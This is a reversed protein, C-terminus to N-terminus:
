FGRGIQKHIQSNLDSLGGLQSGDMSPIINANIQVTQDPIQPLNALQPNVTIPTSEPLGQIPGDAVLNVKVNMAGTEDVPLNSGGSTMNIIQTRPNVGAMFGNTNLGMAANNLGPLDMFRGSILNSSSIFSMDQQLSDGLSKFSAGTAQIYRANLKANEAAQRQYDAAAVQYALQQKILALTDDQLQKQSALAAEREKRQNEKDIKGRPDLFDGVAEGGLEGLIRGGASGIVAGVGPIPILLQGLAGGAISGLTGGVSAGANGSETRDEEKVGLMSRITSAGFKGAVDGFQGGILNTPNFMGSVFNNLGSDALLSNELKIGTGGITTNLISELTSGNGLSPAIKSLDSMGKGVLGNLISSIGNDQNFGISNNVASVTDLLGPWMNGMSVQPASPMPTALAESPASKPEEKVDKKDTSEGEKPKDGVVEPTTGEAPKTEEKPTDQTAAPAPTDKADSDVALNTGAKEDIAKLKDTATGEIPISAGPSPTASDSPKTDKQQKPLKDLIANRVEQTRKEILATNKVVQNITAILKTLNINTTMGQTTKNGVLNNYNETAVADEKGHDHDSHDDHTTNAQVYSASAGIKRMLADSQQTNLLKGNQRLENHIHAGTGIGTNGSLAIVQNADFKDGVKVLTKSLHMLTQTVGDGLDVVIYNGAGGAQYDVKLVKGGKIAPIPTGVAAPTDTGNHMRTKGTVPHVRMGVQSSHPGLLVNNGPGFQQGYQKAGKPLADQVGWEAEHMALMNKGNLTLNKAINRAQAINDQLNLNPDLTFGGKRMGARQIIDRQSDTIQSAHVHGKGNMLKLLLEDIKAKNQDFTKSEDWKYGISRALKGYRNDAPPLVSKIVDSALQERSGRNFSNFGNTAANLVNNILGGSGPVSINTPLAKSRVYQARRQDLTQYPANSDFVVKPRPQGISPKANPNAQTTPKGAPAAGMNPQASGNSLTSAIDKNAAAAFKEVATNFLDIKNGFQDVINGFAGVQEKFPDKYDSLISSVAPADGTVKDLAGKENVIGKLLENAPKIANSGANEGGLLIKRFDAATQTITSSFDAGADQILEAPNKEKIAGTNFFDSVMNGITKLSNERAQKQADNFASGFTAVFRGFPSRENDLDRQTNRQDRENQARQNELDTLEQQRKVLDRQRSIYEPVDIGAQAYALDTRKESISQNINNSERKLDYLKNTLDNLKQVDPGQLTAAFAASFADKFSNGFSRSVDRLAQTLPDVTANINDIELTIRRKDMMLGAREVGSTSPNALKAEIEALSQQKQMLQVAQRRQFNSQEVFIGTKGENEQIKEQLDLYSSVIDLEKEKTELLALSLERLKAKAAEEKQALELEMSQLEQQLSYQDLIKALHRSKEQLAKNEKGLPTNNLLDVQREIEKTNGKNATAIERVRALYQKASPDNILGSVDSQAKDIDKFTVAQGNGVIRRQAELRSKTVGIDFGTRTLEQTDQSRGILGREMQTTSAQKLLEVYEKYRTINANILKLRGEEGSISGANLLAQTHIVEILAQNYQNVQSSGFASSMVGSIETLRKYQENLNDIYQKYLDSAKQLVDKIRENISVRDNELKGVRLLHGTQAFTEKALNEAYKQEVSMAKLRDISLKLEQGGLSVQGQSKVLSDGELDNAMKLMDIRQQGINLQQDLLKKQADIAARLSEIRAEDVQQLKLQIQYQEETDDSNKLKTNLLQEAVALDRMNIRLALASQTVAQKASIENNERAKQVVSLRQKALSLIREQTAEQKKNKQEAIEAELDKQQPKNDGGEEMLGNIKARHEQMSVRSQIAAELASRAKEIDAKFDGMGKGGFLGGTAASLGRAIVSRNNPNAAFKHQAQVTEQLAAAKDEIIKNQKLIDSNIKRAKEADSKSLTGLALASDISNNSSEVDTAALKNTGRAKNIIAQAQAERTGANKWADSDEMFKTGAQIATIMAILQGIGPLFAGLKGLIPTLKGLIPFLSGVVGAAKSFPGAVKGIIGGLKGFLAGFLNIPKSLFAGIKSIMGSRKTVNEAIEEGIKGVKGAKGGIGGGLTSLGGLVDGTAETAAAKGVAIQFANGAAIVQGEFTTGARVINTDIGGISGKNFKDRIVSVGKAAGLGLLASGALHGVREGGSIADNLDGAKVKINTLAKTIAMFPTLITNLASKITAAIVLLTGKLDEFNSKLKSGQSEIDEFFTRVERLASKLTPLLTMGIKSGLSMITQVTSNYQNQLSEMQISAEKLASGESDKIKGDSGMVKDYDATSGAFMSFLRAMQYTGGFAKYTALTEGRIRGAETTDGRAIADQEAKDNARSRERLRKTVESATMGKLSDLQLYKALAKQARPDNLKSYFTKLATGIEANATAFTKMGVAITAITEDLSVGAAHAVSGVRQLNQTLLDASVTPMVNTVQNLKDVFGDVGKATLEFQTAVGALYKSTEGLQINTAIALKNASVTANIADAENGYLAIFDRMVSMEEKQSKGFVKSIGIAKETLKNLKEQKIISEQQSEDMGNGGGPLMAEDQATLPMIKRIDFQAQELDAAAAVAGILSQKLVGITTSIAGYALMVRGATQVLDLMSRNSKGTAAALEGMASAKNKLSRGFADIINGNKDIVKTLKMYEKGLRVVQTEHTVLDNTASDKSVTRITKNKLVQYGNTDGYEKVKNLFGQAKASRESYKQTNNLDQQVQKLQILRERAETSGKGMAQLNKIYSDISASAQVYTMNGSKIDNTLNKIGEDVKAIQGASFEKLGRNISDNTFQDRFKPDISKGFESATSIGTKYNLKGEKSYTATAYVRELQGNAKKIEKEFVFAQGAVTDTAHKLQYGSDIVGKIAPSMQALEKVGVKLGALASHLDKYEGIIDYDDGYDGSQKTRVFKGNHRSIAEISLDDNYKRFIEQESHHARAAREKFADKETLSANGHLAGVSGTATATDNGQQVGNLKGLNVGSLKIRVEPQGTKLDAFARKLEKVDEIFEKLKYENGTITDFVDNLRGNFKSFDVKEFTTNLREVSDSFKNLRTIDGQKVGPVEKVENEAADRKNKFTDKPKEPAELREIERSAKVVNKTPITKSGVEKMKVMLKEVNSISQGININFEDNLTGFVTKATREISKLSANVKGVNKTFGISNISLDIKADMKGIKQHVSDLERKLDNFKFNNLSKINENFSKNVAGFSTNALREVSKISANVKGMSQTFDKQNLAINVDASAIGKLKTSIGDIEKKLSNANFGVKIDLKSIGSLEKLQSNLNKKTSTLDLVGSIKLETNKKLESIARNVNTQTKQRDVDFAFSVGDVSKKVNRFADIVSKRLKEENIYANIELGLDEDAM